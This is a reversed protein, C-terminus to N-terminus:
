GGRAGAVAGSALALHPYAPARTDHVGAKAAAAHVHISSVPGAVKLIM